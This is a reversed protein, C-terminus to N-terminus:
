ADHRGEDHQVPSMRSGDEQRSQRPAGPGTWAKEIVNLELPTFIVRREDPGDLVVPCGGIRREIDGHLIDVRGRMGKWGFSTVEVLDGPEPASARNAREEVTGGSGITGSKVPNRTVHDGDPTRMQVAPAPTVSGWRNKIIRGKNTVIIDAEAFIGAYGRAGDSSVHAGEDLVLVRTSGIKIYAYAGAGTAALYFEGIRKRLREIEQDQAREAKRLSEITVVADHLAESTTLQAGRLRNIIDSRKITVNENM